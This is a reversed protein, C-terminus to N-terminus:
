LGRPSCRSFRAYKKCSAPHTVTRTCPQPVVRNGTCACVCIVAEHLVTRMYNGPSAFASTAKPAVIRRRISLSVCTVWCTGAEGAEGANQIHFHEHTGPLKGARWSSFAFLGRNVWCRCSQALCLSVSPLTWLLASSRFSAETGKASAWSLTLVGATCYNPPFIFTCSSRCVEWGM